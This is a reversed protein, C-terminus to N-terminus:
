GKVIKKTLTGKPTEIKLFYIGKSTISSMDLQMQDTKIDQSLLQKGDISTLSLTGKTTHPFNIFLQDVVPNPFVQIDQLFKEEVSLPILTFLNDVQLTGATFEGDYSTNTNHIIRFEVVNSLTQEIFSQNSNVNPDYTGTTITQFDGYPNNAPIDSNSEIAIYTWDTNAPIVFPTQTVVIADNMGKIGVRLNLPFNNDNKVHFRITIGWQEGYMFGGYPFTGYNYQFAMEGMSSNSGNSTKLLFRDGLIPAANNPHTENTLVSTSGDTNTWNTITGNEFDIDVQALIFLPFCLFLTFLLQKKM